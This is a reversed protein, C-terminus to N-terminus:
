QLTFHRRFDSLCNEFDADGSLYPIMAIFYDIVAPEMVCADVEYITDIITNVEGQSVPSFKVFGYETMGDRVCATRLIKETKEYMASRLVPLEIGVTYMDSQIEESLLIKLFRYANLQNPSEARIYARLNPSGTVKGDYGPLNILVPTETTKLASYAQLMGRLTGQQQFITERNLLGFGYNPIESPMNEISDPYFVDQYDDVLDHLKEANLVIQGEELNTLPLGCWPFVEQFFRGAYINYFLRKEPHEQRYDSLFDMATSYNQLDHEVDINEEQLIEQTTLWHSSVFSLPVTYRKGQYFGADLVIEHYDAIQFSTDWQFFPELDAYLGSEMHKYESIDIFDRELIIDPGQGAELEASLREQYATFDYEGEFDFERFEITVEPYMEQFLVVAKTLVDTLYPTDYIVLTDTEEPPIFETQATSPDAACAVVATISLVFATVTLWLAPKRWRLINQIRSRVGTEGFALPSFSSFRYGTAVSLLSASYERVSSGEQRLVSEDCSMEMDRSMLYFALWCLPNFWHLTLLIFSLPKVIHDGRHLHTQEHSLVYHMTKEDLHYPLYIRPRFLGLIFPSRVSESQFINKELRVAKVLGHRLKWLHILGYVLLVAIGACWLVMGITLFLQTPDIDSTPPTLPLADPIMQEPMQVDTIIEPETMWTVDQPVNTFVEAPDLSVKSSRFPQIRFLSFASQFSVPCALRFGVVSWLFYSYKRPARRLLLRILLVVLIVISGTLSMKLIKIFLSEV